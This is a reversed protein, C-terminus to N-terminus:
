LQKQEQPQTLAVMSVSRLAERFVRLSESFEGKTTLEVGKTAM